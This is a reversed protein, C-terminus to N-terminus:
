HDSIDSKEVELRAQVKLVLDEFGKVEALHTLIWDRSSEKWARMSSPLNITKITREREQCNVHATTLNCVHWQSWFPTIQCERSIFQEKKNM